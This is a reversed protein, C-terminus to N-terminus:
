NQIIPAGDNKLSCMYGWMYNEKEGKQRRKKSFQGDHPM